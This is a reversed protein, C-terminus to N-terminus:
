KGNFFGTTKISVLLLVVNYKMIILLIHPIYQIIVIRSVYDGKSTSVFEIVCGLKDGNIYTLAHFLM